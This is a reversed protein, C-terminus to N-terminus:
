SPFMKTDRLRLSPLFYDLQYPSAMCKGEKGYAIYGGGLIYFVCVGVLQDTCTNLGFQNQEVSSLVM